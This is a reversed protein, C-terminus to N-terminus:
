TLEMILSRLRNEFSKFSLERATWQKGSVGKLRLEDETGQCFSQIAAVATEARDDQLFWGCDVNKLELVLDNGPSLIAPLGAALCEAATYNFNERASLSIYADSASFYDAIELGYVPGIVHVQRGVGLRDAHARCEADTIGYANGVIILHVNPQRAAAIAEITELPRKMPHLRGFFLLCRAAPPIQHRERVRYRAAPDHVREFDQKELPWYIVEARRPQCVKMAKDREGRTSFIVCAAQQIFNRGGFKLFMWKAVRDKEFVYPDLSGHPVFLYPINTRSSFKAVWQNHWRWFSHCTIMKASSFKREISQSQGIQPCLLKNLVPLRSGFVIESNEWILPEQEIKRPDVWSVVKANLARQFTQVSKNVGGSGKYLGLALVIVNSNM